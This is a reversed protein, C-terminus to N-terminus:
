HTLHPETGLSILQLQGAGYDGVLLLSGDRSSAVERPFYHAPIVGESSARPSPKLSYAVLEINGDSGGFRNSNVVALVDRNGVAALGVPAPGVRVTIAPKPEGGTLLNRTLYANM